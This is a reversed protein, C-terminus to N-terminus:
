LYTIIYEYYIAYYHLYLINDEIYIYDKDMFIKFWIYNNSIFYGEVFMGKNKNFVTNRTIYFDYIWIFIFQPIFFIIWIQWQM